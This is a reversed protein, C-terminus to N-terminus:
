PLIHALRLSQLDLSFGHAVSQVFQRRLVGIEFFVKVGFIAIQAAENVNIHIILVHAVQFPVFRWQFFGILNSDNGGDGSAAGRNGRIHLQPRVLDQAVATMQDHGLHAHFPLQFQLRRSHERNPRSAETRRERQIQRRRTHTLEANDIEVNDVQGIELPLDQM